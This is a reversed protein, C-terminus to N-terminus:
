IGISRFRVGCSGTIHQGTQLATRLASPPGLQEIHVVLSLELEARGVNRELLRWASEFVAPIASVSVVLRDEIVWAQAYARDASPDHPASSMENATRAAAETLFEWGCTLGSFWSSTPDTVQRNYYSGVSVVAEGTVHRTGDSQVHLVIRALPSTVQLVDTM